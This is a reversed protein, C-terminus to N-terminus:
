ICHPQASHLKQQDYFGRCDEDSSDRDKNNDLNESEEFAYMMKLAM